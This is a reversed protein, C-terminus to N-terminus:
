LLLTILTSLKLLRSLIDQRGLRADTTWDFSSVMRSGRTQQLLQNVWGVPNAGQGAHVSVQEPLPKPLSESFTELTMVAPPAPKRNQLPIVLEDLEHPLPKIDPPIGESGIFDLVAQRIALLAVGHKADNLSRYGTGVSYVQTAGSRHVLKLACGHM